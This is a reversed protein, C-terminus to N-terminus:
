VRQGWAVFFPVSTRQREWESPLAAIAADFEPESTVEQGTVIPRVASFAAIMNQEMMEGLRGGEHGLPVHLIRREVPRLGAAQLYEGIKQAALLDVGRKRGLTGTWRQIAETAPGPNVLESSEVLEVWGGPATVRALERVVRPWQEAPIALFLLRQHVFDFDGDGFPLGELVNATTFTYSGDHASGSGSGDGDHAALSATGAADMPPRPEVLDVGAVHAGPFQAAMERAWRGTGCGVDLIARPQQIPAVFNGNLAYRIVYHQFDLRNSEALDKPLLYPAGAVYDRGIRGEVVLEPSLVTATFVNRRSSFPWM